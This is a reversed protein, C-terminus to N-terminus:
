RRNAIQEAKSEFLKLLTDEDLGQLEEHEALEHALGQLKKMFTRM